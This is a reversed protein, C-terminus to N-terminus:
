SVSESLFLKFECTVTSHVKFVYECDTFIYHFDESNSEELNSCYVAKILQKTEFIFM